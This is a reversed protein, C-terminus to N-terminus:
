RSNLYDDIASNIDSLDFGKRYLSAMIKNKKGPDTLDEKQHIKKLIIEKIILMDNSQSWLEQPINKTNIGNRELLYNLERRSKNKNKKIFYEIFKLDDILKREKLRNISHDIVEEFNVHTVIKYKIISRRLFPNLKSKLIRETKPSLGLQRLSYEWSIYKLSLDIAKHLNDESLEQGVSYKQFVYDDIYLPLYPGNLISLYIRDPNRRSHKISIIKM